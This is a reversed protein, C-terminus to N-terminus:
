GPSQTAKRPQHRTHPPVGLSAMRYTPVAETLELEEDWPTIGTGVLVSDIGARQAGLIDTPLQDGVMVMRDSDARRSAETFIPRHPKGLRTFTLGAHGPFRHTLTAELMAALAGATLGFGADGRPYLFDPNPLLLRPPHGAEIQRILLTTVDDLTELLPYGDEDCLVLADVPSSTSQVLNGGAEEVYSRSDATGLVLCRAGALGHEAFYPTLLSGTTIVRSGDIGPLGCEGYRAACTAPLRSADNTLVFFSRGAKAIARLAAPTGPVAAEGDILTGFADLLLIEYRDLLEPLTILPIDGLLTM